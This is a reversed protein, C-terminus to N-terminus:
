TRARGACAGGLRCARLGLCETHRRTSAQRLLFRSRPLIAWELCLWWCPCGSDALDQFCCGCSAPPGCTSCGKFNAAGTSRGCGTSAFAPLGDFAGCVFSFCSRLACTKRGAFRPYTKSSLRCAPEVGFLSSRSCGTRSRAWCRRHQRPLLTGAM